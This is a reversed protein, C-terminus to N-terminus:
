VYQCVSERCSARGIQNELFADLRVANQMLQIRLLDRGRSWTTILLLIVGGAALPFWGGEFIKISNAGLFLLDLVLLSGAGLLASWLSWGWGARTVRCIVLTAIVM